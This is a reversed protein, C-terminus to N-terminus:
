LLYRRKSTTGKNVQTNAGIISSGRIKLLHLQIIKVSPILM